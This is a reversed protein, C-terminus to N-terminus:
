TTSLSSVLIIGTFQFVVKNNIRIHTWIILGIGIGVVGVFISLIAMAIINWGSSVIVWILVACVVVDLVGGVM